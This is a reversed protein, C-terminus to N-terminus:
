DIAIVVADVQSAGAALLVERCSQVTSGTTYVDDLLLIRHNEVSEALHTSMAFAKQLNTLRDKRGLSAQSATYRNRRLLQLVNGQTALAIDVSQNFGRERQKRPHLPIPVIYDYRGVNICQSLQQGIVPAISQIGNYKLSHIAQQILPQQYTGLYYLQFSDGPETNIVLSGPEIAETLCNHCLGINWVGCNGACRLPFLCNLLFHIMYRLLAGDPASM